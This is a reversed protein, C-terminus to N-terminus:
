PGAPPDVAATDGPAPDGGALMAAVRDAVSPAIPPPATPTTPAPPVPAPAPNPHPPFPAPRQASSHPVAGEQRAEEPEPAPPASAALRHPEAARAQPDPGSARLPTLGDAAETAHSIRRLDSVSAPLDARGPPPVSQGQVTEPQPESSREEAATHPRRTGSPEPAEHRPGTAADGAPSTHVPQHPHDTPAPAAPTPDLGMLVAAVGDAVPQSPARTRDAATVPPVAPAAAQETMTEAARHQPQEPTTELAPHQAPESTPEEAQHQV